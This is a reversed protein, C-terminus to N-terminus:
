RIVAPRPQGGRHTSRGRRTSRCRETSRRSAASRCRAGAYALAAAATEGRALRGRIMGAALKLLLPWEGLRRALSVLTAPRIAELGFATVLLWVAGSTMEDVRTRAMDSVLEFRRTTILVTRKGARLFPELHRREWVDDIVLLCARHELKQALKDGRRDRRPVGPAPGHAGRVVARTRRCGHPRGWRRGCCVM